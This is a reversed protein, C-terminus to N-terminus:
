YKEAHEWNEENEEVESVPSRYVAPPPSSAGATLVVLPLNSFFLHLNTLFQFNGDVKPGENISIEIIIKKM